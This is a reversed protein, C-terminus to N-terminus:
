LFILDLDDHDDTGINNQFGQSGVLNAWSVLYPYVIVIRVNEVSEYKEIPLCKGIDM